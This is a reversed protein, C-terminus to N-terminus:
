VSCLYRNQQWDGFLATVIKNNPSKKKESIHFNDIIYLILM